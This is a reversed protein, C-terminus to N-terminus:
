KTYNELLGQVGWFVVGYFGRRSAPFGLVRYDISRDILLRWALFM